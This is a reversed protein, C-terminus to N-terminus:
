AGPTNPAPAAAPLGAAPPQPSSPSVPKEGEAEKAAAAEEAQQERHQREAKEKEMAQVHIRHADRAKQAVKPNPGITMSMARGELKPPVETIAIDKVDATVDDLVQTGLERHTIERGRFMITVKAKNGEEIAARIARLKTDYDHEETRPRMKYEKIEVRHQKKKADNAKKKEEYKYRGYDMIKCVPPKAMPNIEVLNLGSEQAKALAQDISLVGLQEGAAGVVRVERARIRRDTRQDRIIPM